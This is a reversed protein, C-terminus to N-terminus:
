DAAVDLHKALAKCRRYGKTRHHLWGRGLSNKLNILARYLEINYVDACELAGTEALADKMKVRDEGTSREMFERYNNGLLTRLLVALRETAQRSRGGKARQLIEEAVEAFPRPELRIKGDKMISEGQFLILRSALTSPRM